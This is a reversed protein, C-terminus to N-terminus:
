KEQELRELIEKLYTYCEKTHTIERKFLAVLFQQLPESWNQMNELNQTQSYELWKGTMLFVIMCGLGYLDLEKISYREEAPPYFTSAVQWDPWSIGLSLFIHYIGVDTLKIVRTVDEKFVHQPNVSGHFKRDHHLYYLAVAINIAIKLAKREPLQKKQELIKRFNKGQLYDYVITLQNDKWYYDLLTLIGNNQLGKQQKLAHNIQEIQDPTVVDPFSYTKLLVVNKHIKHSAKEVLVHNEERIKDLVEYAVEGEALEQIDDNDADFVQTIEPNANEDLQIEKEITFTTLGVEIEDHSHLEVTNDLKKDNIFTGNTSGLDSIFLKGGECFIKCHKASVKKDQLRMGSNKVRGILIPLSKEHLTMSFGENEGRIITLKWQM